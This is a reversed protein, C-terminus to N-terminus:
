KTGKAGTQM